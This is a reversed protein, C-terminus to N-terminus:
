KHTVTNPLWVWVKLVQRSDWLHPFSNRNFKHGLIRPWSGYPSNKTTASADTGKSSRHFRWQASKSCTPMTAYHPKRAQLFQGHHKATNRTKIHKPNHQVTQKKWKHTHTHPTISITIDGQAMSHPMYERSSSITGLKMESSSARFIRRVPRFWKQSVNVHWSRHPKATYLHYLLIGHMEVCWKLWLTDIPITEFFTEITEIVPFDTFKMRSQQGPRLQDGEPQVDRHQFNWAMWAMWTRMHWIPIFRIWFHCLWSFIIFLHMLM